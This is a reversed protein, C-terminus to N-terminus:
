PLFVAGEHPEVPAHMAEVIAAELADLDALGALARAPVTGSIDRFRRVAL